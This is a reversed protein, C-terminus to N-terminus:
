SGDGAMTGILEAHYSIQYEGAEFWVPCIASQAVAASLYELKRQWDMNSGFPKFDTLEGKM